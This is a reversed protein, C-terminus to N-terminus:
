DKQISSARKGGVLRALAALENYRKGRIIEPAVYGPSGVRHPASWLSLGTSWCGLTSLALAPWFLGQCVRTPGAGEDDDGNQM